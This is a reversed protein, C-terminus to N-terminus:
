RFFHPWNMAYKPFIRRLVKIVRSSVLWIELGISDSLFYFGNDIFKLRVDNM